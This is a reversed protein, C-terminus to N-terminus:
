RCTLLAVRLFLFFFDLTSMITAYNELVTNTTKYHGSWRHKVLRACVACVNPRALFDNLQQCFFFIVMDVKQCVSVVLHLQHNFCHIYPVDRQVRDTIRRQVRSHKGSMVSAGDYCQAPLLQLDLDKVAQLLKETIYDSDSRELEYFGLLTEAPPGHQTVFRIVVSLFFSLELRIEPRMVNLPSCNLKDNKKIEQVNKEKLLQAMMEITMKFIHNTSHMIHFQNVLKQLNQM